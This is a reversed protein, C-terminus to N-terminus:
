TKVQELVALTRRASELSTDLPDVIDEKLVLARHLTRLGDVFRRYEDIFVRELQQEALLGRNAQQLQVVRINRQARSHLDYVKVRQAQPLDKTPSELNAVVELFTQLDREITSLLKQSVSVRPKAAENSGASFAAPVQWALLCLVVGITWNNRAM